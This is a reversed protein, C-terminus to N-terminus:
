FILATHDSWDPVRVSLFPLKNADVTSNMVSNKKYSIVFDLLFMTLDETRKKKRDVGVNKTCM